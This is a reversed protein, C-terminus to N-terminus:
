SDLERKVDTFDTRIPETRWIRGHGDFLASKQLSGGYQKIHAQHDQFEAISGLPPNM